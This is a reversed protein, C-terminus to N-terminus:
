CSACTVGAMAGRACIPARALSGRAVLHHPGRRHALRGVDGQRDNRERVGNGTLEPRTAPARHPGRWALRLSFRGFALLLVLARRLETVPKGSVSAAGADRRCPHRRSIQARRGPQKRCTAARHLFRAASFDYSDDADGMIVFRGHAARIGGLLASGYGKQVIRVVRAGAQRALEVSGDRSGNDAVLVEGVIGTRELFERAKRVCTAVTEAENLCPMLITLEPAAAGSGAAAREAHGPEALPLLASRLTSEM